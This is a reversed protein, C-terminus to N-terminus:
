LSRVKVKNKNLNENDWYFSPDKYGPFRNNAYYEMYEFLSAADDYIRQVHKINNISLYM